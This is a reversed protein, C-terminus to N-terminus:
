NPFDYSPSHEKTCFPHKTRDHRANPGYLARVIELPREPCHRHDTEAQDVATYAAANLITRPKIRNLEEEVMNTLTLDLEGIDYLLLENEKALESAAWYYELTRGLQGQAGTVLITNNNM